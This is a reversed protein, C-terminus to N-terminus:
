GDWPSPQAEGYAEGHAPKFSSDHDVVIDM